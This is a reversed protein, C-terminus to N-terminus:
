AQHAIPIILISQLMQRHLLELASTLTNTFASRLFDATSKTQLGAHLYVKPDM